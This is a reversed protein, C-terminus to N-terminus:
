LSGFFTRLGTPHAVGPAPEITIGVATAESVPTTTHLWVSATTGSSRFVGARIHQGGQIWWVEYVLGHRLPTVGRYQLLLWGTARNALVTIRGHVIASTPRLTTSHATLLTGVATPTLPAGRWVFKPWVLALTVLAAVGVWLSVKHRRREPLQPAVRPWPPAPVLDPAGHGLWTEIAARQEQCRTCRNLHRRQRYSLRDIHHVSLLLVDQPLHM